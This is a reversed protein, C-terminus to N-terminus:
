ILLGFTNNPSWKRANLATSCVSLEVFDGEIGVNPSSMDLRKVFPSSKPTIETVEGRQCPPTLLSDSLVTKLLYRQRNGKSMFRV